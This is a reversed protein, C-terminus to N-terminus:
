RTLKGNVATTLATSPIISSASVTGAQLDTIASTSLNLVQSVNIALSKDSVLTPTNTLINNCFTVRASQFTDIPLVYPRISMTRGFPYSKLVGNELVVSGSLTSTVTDDGCTISVSVPNGGSLTSASLAQVDNVVIADNDDPTFTTLTLDDPDKDPTTLAIEQRRLTSRAADRYYVVHKQWVIEGYQDHQIIGNQQASLFSFGDRNPASTARYATVTKVDSQQLDSTMRHMAKLAAQQASAHRQATVWMNLGQILLAGVTVLIGLGVVASVLTEILTMGRQRTPKKM